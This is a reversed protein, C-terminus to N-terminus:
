RQHKGRPQSEKGLCGLSESNGRGESRGTEKGMLLTKVHNNLINGGGSNLVKEGAQYWTAAGAKQGRM